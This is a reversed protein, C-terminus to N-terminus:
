RVLQLEVESFGMLRGGRETPVVTTVVLDIRRIQRRGPLRLRSKRREDAYMKLTYTSSDNITVQVELARAFAGAEFPIRRAHGLVVTNATVASEFELTLRSEGSRHDTLWYTDQREDLVLSAPHRPQADSAEVHITQGRLLNATRDRANQLLWDPCDAEVEVLLDNSKLIRFASPVRRGSADRTPPMLVHVEASLRNAGSHEFTFQCAYREHGSPQNPNGEIRKFELGNALWIVREVRPGRGEEGPWECASRVPQSYGTVWMSTPDHGSASLRVPSASAEHSVGGGGVLGAAALGTEPATARQLFLLAFCTQPLGAGLTSRWHGQRHQDAVLRQAGEDYWRNDGFLATPALAGARELGYLYYGLHTDGRGPNSRVSFHEGIWAAGQELGELLGYKDRRPNEALDLQDRCISLAAVAATTMSGTSDGGEQRYAFGGDSEQYRMLGHAVPSWIGKPVKVGAQDAAWLGMVAYQTNSLDQWGGQGKGPTGPYGWGGREEWGVLIEVLDDLRGRYLDPDAKSLAMMALACDYTQSPLPELALHTAALLAQESDPSLGSSLLTYLVLASCGMRPSQGYHWSGDLQQRDLLYDM